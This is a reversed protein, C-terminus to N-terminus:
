KINYLWNNISGFNTLREVSMRKRYVWRLVWPLNGSLVYKKYYINKRRKMM